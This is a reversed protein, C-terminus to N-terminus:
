REGRHPFMGDPRGNGDWNLLNVKGSSPQDATQRAALGHFNEVAVPVSYGSASGFVGGGMGPGGDYDLACALEDLQRGQEAHATPIVYRDEYKAIALLRYMEEIDRGTMGVATAIREDRENDLNIGRMYSRMAALRRLATDVPAVDGATFLEALYGIPIRLKDIAAFLTRADEGDNGSGSVVDVVPSLPPIYWVMPMTRYEPHLPLAVEYRQILKWIPSAQAAEIWDEPIGDRRAAEVVAPDHPDLLVARHADLLDHENEVAAAAAVKEVDYLVLGLYRLRGVCTESCVTPLGVEIRPYCLTCKEAKGTKHNFYVKKYPCGSVCMRWGRCADQDVLVIGDEARKYMAGSPCSAVCAPNLCHECIRPLYFMFAKEFEAEVQESMKALIPDEHMTELSGGLDDDWNASWSIKMDQGTILSKPRAVPTHQGAPSNILMDYDYTWPEYYDSMEPLKPNSFIRLLKAFRGGARLKLRGRRTRVWGGQWKDQDQYGRPFGVGPRTEVNNFWVYEVGTRNTWAQKCTVSCTHCGICKDLNMVMAMQAMVKM